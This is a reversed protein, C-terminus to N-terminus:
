ICVMLNDFIIDSPDEGHFPTTIFTLTDINNFDSPFVFLRLEFEDTIYTTTAVQLGDRYGTFVVSAFANGNGNDYSYISVLNFPTNRSIASLTFTSSYIVNLPSVLGIGNMNMVTSSMYNINKWDFGEYGNPVPAGVSSRLDDFTILHTSCTCMGHVCHQGTPCIIGCDGCHNIDSLKNVCADNCYTHGPNCVADDEWGHTIAVAMALLLLLTIPQM